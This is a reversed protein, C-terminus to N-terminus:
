MWLNIFCVVMWLSMSWLTKLNAEAEEGPLFTM